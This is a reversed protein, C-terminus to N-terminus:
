KVTILLSLQVMEQTIRYSTPSVQLYLDLVISNCSSSCKLDSLFNSLVDRTNINLENGSLNSETVTVHNVETQAEYILPLHGAFIKVADM